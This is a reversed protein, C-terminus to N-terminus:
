EVAFCFVLLVSVSIFSKSKVFLFFIKKGSQYKWVGHHVEKAGDEDVENSITM